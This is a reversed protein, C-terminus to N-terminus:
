FKYTCSLQVSLLQVVFIGTTLFELTSAFLDVYIFATSSETTNEMNLSYTAFLCVIRPLVFMDVINTVLLKMRWSVKRQLCVKEKSVCEM